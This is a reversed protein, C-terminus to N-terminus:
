TVFKSVEVLLVCWLCMNSYVCQVSPEGEQHEREREELGVWGLLRQPRPRPVEHLSHLLEAGPGGGGM